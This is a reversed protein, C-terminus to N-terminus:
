GNQGFAAAVSRPPRVRPQWWSRAAVSYCVLAVPLMIGCRWLMVIRREVPRVGVRALVVAVAPIGEQPMEHGARVLM